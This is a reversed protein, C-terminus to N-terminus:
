RRDHHGAGASSQRSSSTSSARPAGEAEVVGSVIVRVCQDVTTAGADLVAVRRGGKLVMVRDAVDLVDPIRHTIMIVSTGHARLGRILELVTAAEAPGLSASPEDMVIIKSASQFAVARAIAVMQRQGGSLVGVQADPSIDVRLRKLLQATERRMAAKKTYPILGLLRGSLERGVFVNGAVDLNNFLALDQHIVEIGYSRAKQATDIRVACGGVLIEGGDAEVIGALIKVLTSKGAGNDGVLGLIEGRRLELDADRVAEVRGFRKTIARMQVIVDGAEHDAPSGTGAPSGAYNTMGADILECARRLVSPQPRESSHHAKPNASSM